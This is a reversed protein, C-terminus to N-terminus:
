ENHRQSLCKAPNGWRPTIYLYSAVGLCARIACQDSERSLLIFICSVLLGAGAPPTMSTLQPQIEFKNITYINQRVAYRYLVVKLHLFGGKFIPTTEYLLFQLGIKKCSTKIKYSFHTPAYFHLVHM